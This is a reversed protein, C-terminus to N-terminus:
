SVLRSINGRSKRFRILHLTADEQLCIDGIDDPGDEDLPSIDLFSNSIALM